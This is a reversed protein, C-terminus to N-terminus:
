QTADGESKTDMDLESLSNKIDSRTLSITQDPLLPFGKDTRIAFKMILTCTEGKEFHIGAENGNAVSIMLIPLPLLEDKAMTLPLGTLVWQKPDGIDWTFGSARPSALPNSGPVVKIANTTEWGKDHKFRIELSMTLQTITTLAGRHLVQLPPFGLGVASARYSGDGLRNIPLGLSTAPCLIDFLKTKELKTELEKIIQRAKNRQKYPARFLNWAFIILVAIALGGLGGVVSRWIIEVVPANIPALQAFWIGGAVALVGEGGWMFRATRQASITDKAARRWTSQNLAYQGMGM